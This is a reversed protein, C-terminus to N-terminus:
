KLENYACGELYISMESNRTNAAGNMAPADELVSSHDRSEPYTALFRFLLKTVTFM